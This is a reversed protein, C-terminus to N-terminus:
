NMNDRSDKKKIVKKKHRDIDSVMQSILHKSYLRGTFLEGATCNKKDEESLQIESDVRTIEHEYLKFIAKITQWENTEVFSELFNNLPKLTDM